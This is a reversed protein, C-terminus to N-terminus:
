PTWIMAIIIKFFELTSKLHLLNLKCTAVPSYDGQLIMLWQCNLVLDKNACMCDAHTRMCFCALWYEEKTQLPICADSSEYWYPLVATLKKRWSKLIVTSKILIEEGNLQDAVLYINDFFNERAAHKANILFVHIDTGIIHLWKRNSITSASM